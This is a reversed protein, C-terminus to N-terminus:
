DVVPIRIHIITGTQVQAGARPRQSAPAGDIGNIFVVDAILGRKAFGKEIAEKAATLGAFFDTGTYSSPFDRWSPVVVFQRWAYVAKGGSTYPQKMLRLNWVRLRGDVQSRLTMRTYRGHIVRNLSLTAAHATWTGSAIDPVGDNQWMAGRGRAATANWTQWLIPKGRGASLRGIITSIAAGNGFPVVTPPRRVFETATNYALM